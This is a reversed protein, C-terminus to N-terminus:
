KCKDEQLRIRFIREFDSNEIRWSNTFNIIAAYCYQINLEHNSNWTIDLDICDLARFIVVELDDAKLDQDAKLILVENSGKSLAPSQRVIFAKVKKDPSLVEKIIEFHNANKNQFTCDSITIILVIFFLLKFTKKM